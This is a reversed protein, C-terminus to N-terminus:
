KVRRSAKASAILLYSLLHARAVATAGTSEKVKDVVAGYAACVHEDSPEQGPLVYHMQGSERQMPQEIGLLKRQAEAWYGRMNAGAAICNYSEGAQVRSM